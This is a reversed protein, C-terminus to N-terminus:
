GWGSLYGMEGGSDPLGTTDALGPAPHCQRRLRQAAGTKAFLPGEPDLAAQPFWRISSMVRRGALAPGGLGAGESDKRGSSREGGQNRCAQARATLRRVGLESTVEELLAKTIGAKIM